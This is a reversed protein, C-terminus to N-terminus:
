SNAEQAELLTDLMTELDEGLISASEYLYDTKSKLLKATAPEFPCNECDGYDCNKPDPKTLCPNIAPNNASNALEVISGLVSAKLDITM